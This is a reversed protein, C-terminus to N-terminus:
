DGRAAHSWALGPVTAPHQGNQESWADGEDLTFTAVTRALEAAQARLESAAAAAQEVRAANRQTSQDIQSIATTAQGVGASQERSAASIRAMIGSLQEVDTAIERMGAGAQRVLAGGEEVQRASAGILGKIQRAAAASRQALGRVETAVVAFGRGQEGARAAEVAANLALLNTQFAIADILNVIDAINRSSQGVREMSDVAQRMLDAGRSALLAADNALVGAEAAGDANQRVTQALQAMSTATQQLSAAQSETHGALDANGEAIRRSAAAIAEAGGRVQQVIRALSAHMTQQAGLLQGVEDAGPMTMDCARLDGQSVRLAIDRAQRLPPVLGHSLRWALLVGLALSLAGLGGLMVISADYARSASTSMAGAAEAQYALLAAIGQRYHEFRPTMSDAFLREADPIRGGEKYRFVEARSQLYASRRKAVDAVLAAERADLARARMRGDLAQALAESRSLLAEFHQALEMSDSRAISVAYAGGLDVANLWDSALQQRVLRDDVLLRATQHTARLQALAVITMCAMLLLLFAFCALLRAGITKPLIRPM